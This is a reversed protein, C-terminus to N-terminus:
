IQNLLQMVAGKIMRMGLVRIIEETGEPNSM